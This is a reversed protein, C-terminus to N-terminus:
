LDPTANRCIRQRTGYLDATANRWIGGYRQGSIRQRTGLFGGDPGSCFRIYPVAKLGDWPWTRAVRTEMISCGGIGSTRGGSGISLGGGSMLGIGGGSM